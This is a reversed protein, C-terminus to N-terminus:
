PNSGKQSYSAGVNMDAECTHYNTYLMQCNNCQRVIKPAFAPTKKVEEAKSQDANYRRKLWMSSMTAPNSAAPAPSSHPQKTPQTAPPAAESTCNNKMSRILAAKKPDIVPKITNQKPTVKVMAPWGPAGNKVVIQSM